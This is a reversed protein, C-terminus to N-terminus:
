FSSALSCTARIRLWLGLLIGIFSLGLALALISLASQLFVDLSASVYLVCLAALRLNRSARDSLSLWQLMVLVSLAAPMVYWHLLGYDSTWVPLWVYVGINTALLALYPSLLNRPQTLYLGAVAWLSLSAHWSQAQLPISWLVLLPLFIHALLLKAKPFYRQLIQPLVAFGLLVVTDIANFSAFGFILLRAYIFSVFVWLLVIHLRLSLFRTKIPQNSLWASACLLSAILAAILDWDSAPWGASILFLWFLLGAQATLLLVRSWAQFFGLIKSHSVGTKIYTFIVSGAAMLVAQLCMWPLLSFLHADPLVLWATQLAGLLAFLMSIHLWVRRPKEVRGWIAHLLSLLSLGWWSLWYDIFAAQWAVLLFLYIAIGYNIFAFLRLSSRLSLPIFRVAAWALFANIAFFPFSIIADFFAMPPYHLLALWSTALLLSSSALIGSFVYRRPQQWWHLLCYGLLVLCSLSPLWTMPQLMESEAGIDWLALTWQAIFLIILLERKAQRAWQRSVNAWRALLPLSQLVPIMLALLLLAIYLPEQLPLPQLIVAILLAIAISLLLPYHVVLALWATLLVGALAYISWLLEPTFPTALVLTTIGIAWLAVVAVFWIPQLLQWRLCPTVIQQLPMGWLILVPPKKRSMTASIAQQPKWGLLPLAALLGILLLVGDTPQVWEYFYGAVAAVAFGVVGWALLHQQYFWWGFAFLMGSLLGIAFSLTPSDLLSLIAIAFVASVLSSNFWIAPRLLLRQSSYTVCFWGIGHWILAVILYFWPLQLIPAEINLEPQTLALLTSLGLLYYLHWM